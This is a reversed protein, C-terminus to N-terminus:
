AEDLFRRALAPADQHHDLLVKIALSRHCVPDTARLVVGMGGRRIEEEVWFCRAPASLAVPPSVGSAVTAENTSRSDPTTLAGDPTQNASPGPLAIPPLESPTARPEPQAMPQR